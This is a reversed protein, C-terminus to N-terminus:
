SPWLLPDGLYPPRPGSRGGERRPAEFLESPKPAPPAARRGKERRPTLRPARTASSPHRDREEGAVGDKKRREVRGGEKSRNRMKKEKKTAPEPKRVIPTIVLSSRISSPVSALSTSSFLSSGRRLPVLLRWAGRRAADAGWLRNGNRFSGSPRGPLARFASSSFLPRSQGARTGECAVDADDVPALLVDIALLVDPRRQRGLALEEEGVGGVPVHGVAHAGRVQLLDEVLHTPKGGGGWNM